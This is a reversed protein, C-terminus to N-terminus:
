HYDAIVTADIKAMRVAAAIIRDQIQTVPWGQTECFMRQPHTAFFLARRFEYGPDTNGYNSKHSLFVFIGEFEGWLPLVTYQNKLNRLLREQVKRGYVIEVKAEASDEIRNTLEEHVRIVPEPYDQLGESKSHRRHLHDYMPSNKKTFGNNLIMAICPNSPDAVEEDKIRTSSTSPQHLHHIIQSQFSGSPKVLHQPDRLPYGCIKWTNHESAKFEQFAVDVDTITKSIGIVDETRKEVFRSEPEPLRGQM